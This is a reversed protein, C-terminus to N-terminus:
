TQLNKKLLKYILKVTTHIQNIKQQTSVTNESVTAENLEKITLGTIKLVNRYEMKNAILKLAIKQLRIKIAKISRNHAKAIEQRTFKSRVEDLLVLEEDHTWRKFVISM